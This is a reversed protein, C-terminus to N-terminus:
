GQDFETLKTGVLRELFARMNVVHEEWSESKIVTDDSYIVCSQLGHVTHKM